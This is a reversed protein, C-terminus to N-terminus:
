EFELPPVAAAGVGLVADAAHFVGAQAVQTRVAEV